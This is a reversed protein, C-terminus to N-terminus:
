LPSARAARRRLRETTPVIFVASRDIARMSVASRRRNTGSTTGRGSSKVSVKVPISRCADQLGHVRPDLSQEVPIVDEPM